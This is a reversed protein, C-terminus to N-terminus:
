NWTSKLGGVCPNVVSMVSGFLVRLHMVVDGPSNCHGCSGEAGFSYASARVCM